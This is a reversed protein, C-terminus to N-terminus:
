DSSSRRSLPPKRRRSIAWGSGQVPSPPAAAFPTWPLGGSISRASADAISGAFLFSATSALLTRRTQRHTDAPADPIIASKDSMEGERDPNDGPCCFPRGAVRLQRARCAALDAHKPARALNSSTAPGGYAPAFAYQCIAFRNATVPVPAILAAIAIPSQWWTLISAGARGPRWEPRPRVAGARADADFRAARGSRVIPRFLAVTVSIYHWFTALQKTIAM